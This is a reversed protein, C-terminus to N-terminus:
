ELTIYIRMRRWLNFRWPTVRENILVESGILSYYSSVGDDYTPDSAPGTWVEISEGGINSFDWQNTILNNEHVSFTFGDYSWDVPFLQFLTSASPESAHFDVAIRANVKKTYASRVQPSFRFNSGDTYTIIDTLLRPFQFDIYDHYEYATPVGGGGGGNITRTVRLSFATGLSRQTVETGPSPTSPVSTSFVIQRTTTIWDNTEEDPEYDVLAALKQYRRTVTMEPGNRQTNEAVLKATSFTPHATDFTPSAYSGANVVDFQWTIVTSDGGYEDDKGQRDNVLGNMWNASTSGTALNFAMVDLRYIINWNDDQDSGGTRWADMVKLYACKPHASGIVCRPPIRQDSTTPRPNHLAAPIVVSEAYTRDIQLGKSNFRLSAKDGLQRAIDRYSDAM